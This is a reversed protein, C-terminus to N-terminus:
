LFFHFGLTLLGFYITLGVVDNFTAVFPGTALAPDVKIKKFFLPIVAGFIAANIVIIILTSGLMAGFIYDRSWLAILSFILIALVTGNMLAVLFERKLRRATDGLGIEGTVLGRVVIISSQQGTSGGMVMVIPIFFASIIIKEMTASFSSLIIASIIEGFFSLLLWPLRARSIQMVSDELVEEEGTGAILGLDEDIEEDIVDVVDDITIRGVLKRRKNIVPAVMLDYKKFMRAVEEQDMDVTISLIEPDMIDRVLIDAESIILGRLSVSGLLHGFDDIVFCYYLNEVDQHRKRIEEIAMQVTSNAHVAIFEKAMIGGATDEPYTLLEQIEESSEDEVKELIESAQEPPLESIIDAADDSDMENVMEAIQVNDLKELVDEKVNEDLEVLVESAKESPIIHFLARREDGDLHAMIEAIDAPHLDAIVPLAFNMQDNDILYRLNEIIENLDIDQLLRAM